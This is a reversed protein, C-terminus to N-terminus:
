TMFFHRSLLIMHPYESRRKQAADEFFRESCAAYVSFKMKRGYISLPKGPSPGLLVNPNHWTFASPFLVVQEEPDSVPTLNSSVIFGIHFERHEGYRGNWVGVPQGDIAIKHPKEHRKEWNYSAFIADHQGLIKTKWPETVIQKAWSIITDSCGLRIDSPPSALLAPIEHAKHLDSSMQYKKVIASPTLM